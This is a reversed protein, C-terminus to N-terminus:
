KIIVPLYVWNTPDPLCRLITVKNDSPRGVILQPRAADYGSVMSFGKNATNGLVSNATSVPGVPMCPYGAILSVAGHNSGDSWSQFHMSANGDSLATIKSKCFVLDNACTNVLSNSDSVAGVTGNAGDGWTVAGADTGNSWHPSNVIYNGNPLATVGVDGWFSGNGVEDGATSGVLSNAVSVVGTAGGTGNGWTVAGADTVGGNDWQPISVVYNGNTLVTVTGDSWDGGLQDDTTSGVLSNDASVVGITGNTGDGWTIAGVDTVAGNDWYPSIVM